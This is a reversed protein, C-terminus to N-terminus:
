MIKRKEISNLISTILSTENWKSENERIKNHSGLVVQFFLIYKNAVTSTNVHENRLYSNLLENRKMMKKAEEEQKEENEGQGKQKKDEYLM